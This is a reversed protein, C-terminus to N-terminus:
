AVGGSEVTHTYQVSEATGRGGVKDGAAKGRREKGEFVVAVGVRRKRNEENGKM